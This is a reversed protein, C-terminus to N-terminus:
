FVLGASFGTSVKNGGEFAGSFLLGLSIIGYNVKPNVAWGWVGSSGTIKKYKDGYYAYNVYVPFIFRSDSSNGLPFSFNPGIQCLASWYDRDVLGYSYSFLVGGFGFGSRNIDYTELLLGYHGSSKIDDFTGATYVLGWVYNIGENDNSNSVISSTDADKGVSSTRLPEDNNSEPQSIYQRTPQEDETNAINSPSAILNNAVIKQTPKDKKKPTVPKPTKKKPINLRQGVILGKKAKLNKATNPSVELIAKVSVGYHKAISEITEGKKVYHVIIHSQAFLSTAFISHIILLFFFRKM